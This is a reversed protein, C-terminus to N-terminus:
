VHLVRWGLYFILALLGMGLMSLAMFVVTFFQLLSEEEIEEGLNAGHDKM